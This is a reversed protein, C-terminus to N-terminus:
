LGNSHSCLVHTEACVQGLVLGMLKISMVKDVNNQNVDGQNKKPTTKPRAVHGGSRHPQTGSVAATSRPIYVQM